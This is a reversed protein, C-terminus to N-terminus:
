PAAMIKTCVVGPQRKLLGDVRDLHKWNVIYFPINHKKVLAFLYTDFPYSPLLLSPKGHDVIITDVIKGTTVKTRRLIAATKGPSTIVGDVDKLLIIWTLVDNEGALAAALWYAISDATIDWSAPLTCKREQMLRSVPPIVINQCGKVDNALIKGNSDMIEIARWHAALDPDLVVGHSNYWDQAISAPDDNYQKRLADVKKGGGSIIYFLSEPYRGALNRLAGAFAARSGTEDVIMGSAKLFLIERAM